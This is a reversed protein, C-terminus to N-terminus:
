MFGHTFRDRLIVGEYVLQILHVIDFVPLGTAKHVALAYPPLNACEFVIAGVGNGKTLLQAAEVVEKEVTKPDFELENRDIKSFEDREQLGVIKVTRPDIGAGRLHEKTLSKSDATLVGVKEDGGLMKQILPVLLLASTLVPVNLKSAMAEQFISLFGCSTSIAKVGEAELEKAAEIFPILLNKDTEKVVRPITAGKVVRLKVPFGYSSANGVDGPIRPFRTDLTLIGIAQGYHHRGGHVKM